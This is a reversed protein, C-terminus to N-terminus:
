GKAMAPRKGHARARCRWEEKAHAEACMGGKTVSPWAPGGVGLKPVTGRSREWTHGQMREVRYTTPQAPGGAGLEPRAGGYDACTNDNVQHTPNPRKGLAQARSRLGEGVCTTVQAHRGKAVIPRAPDGSGLM